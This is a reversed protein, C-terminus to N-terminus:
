KQSASKAGKSLLFALLNNFDNTAILEGFNDPMLSSESQIREKIQKKPVSIEKGTADAFIVLEGEERRQLGTIVRDDDLTVTSYRFAGDVNRNPDLIDEIIREAGRSALGDLQPGILGGKGDVQHCVACNQEFIKAGTALNGSGRKYSKRREEVLKEREADIPSLWATLKAVRDPVGAVKSANLREKVSKQQLLYPSAKRLEIAALLQEAGDPTSSLAETIKVALRHPSSRLAEILAAASASSNVEGIAQAIRERLSLSEEADNLSGALLPLASNPAIAALARAALARTEPEAVRRSFLRALDPEVQRAKLTRAIEAGSQQRQSIQSPNAAPVSVVPPDFRGAALWAYAGGADGDVLELYGKEGAARSLDWTIKQGVDNRPPPTQQVVSHDLARCLRVINKKGMPKDPYGDHGALYFSLRAPIEFEASRLVGTLQEGNPLSCLFNASQNGDASIRAQIVWPNASNASGELPTNIWSLQEGPGSLLQRALEVGWAKIAPTLYIGRQAVGEQLSRFLATQLDLDSGFKAQVFAALQNLRDEPIYRVIHKLYRSTTERSEQQGQLYGLLFGAAAPSRVASAVDTLIRRDKEIWRAQAVRGMIQEPVLQDRLAMRAAYLLHTDANRAAQILALLPQVNEFAPHQGAAEAAARQAFADSDKLAAITLLRDEQSWSSNESLTRIAHARVAPDKDAALKAILGSDHTGLQELAWLSHVKQFSNKAREVAKRLPAAAASGVRDVLENMALMRYTFNEDDLADVLQNASSKRFDFRRTPIPKKAGGRYTIRWIRGRERDRGPHTLPVEYHGIIRNYFDAIYVGGDPGLQLDVPRFWPDDSSLLDPQEKALRTSGHDELRDRNVRCTMVNGVFINSRFEPPFNQGAYFVVGGIATSGHTHTMMVPGFGLGDDPKGFSPYYGGRLLQYIPSSHCDASYLNGLPDFMLGFPNVQGHTFYEVRSGDPKMRYTNGSNMTIAHGDKGKITTTNNFGHCAYLWGDFGRRFASTMGHTDKEFGLPGYLLEQKDSRGDGDTDEYYSINPISFAIVGNRYPYLGIPINLGDAFTTIKDARGDGDTDELVKIEDRGKRDKPAPFPYERSQTIWLRGRNDFAMNMPKSIEPEAAFIQAEFGPPLHFSKLEDAPTLPETPRVVDAFPDKAAGFSATQLCISIAICLNLVAKM